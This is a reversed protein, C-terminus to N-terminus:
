RPLEVIFVSGRPSGDEVRITGGQTEAALRCFVLGIGTSEHGSPSLLRDTTFPEFIRPRRSAQVGPGQDRVAISVRDAAGSVVVQVPRDIATYKMANSVLNEIIRRTLEPDCNCVTDGHTEVGLDRTPQLVRMTSVVANALASVNAISRNVPLLGAELRSADLLSATMRRLTTAGSIAGEVDKASEGRVEDRLLELHALIVLMPSRMDHVLTQVADVGTAPRLPRYILLAQTVLALGISLVTFVFSGLPPGAGPRPTLWGSATGATLTLAGLLCVGATAYGGRPGLLVTAVLIFLVYFVAVPAHIGGTIWARQTVILSLGIVLIWSALVPRGARSIAHLTIVLAGVAAVTMARRAFTDPEVLVAIALALTVVAFLPWSVIWLATAHRRLNPSPLQPPAFWGPFSPSTLHLM